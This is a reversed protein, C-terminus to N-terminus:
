QKLRRKKSLAHKKRPAEVPASSEPLREKGLDAELVRAAALCLQRFAEQLDAESPNAEPRPVQVKASKEGPPRVVAPVTTGFWGTMVADQGSGSYVGFYYDNPFYEVDVHRGLEKMCFYHLEGSWKSYLKYLEEATV